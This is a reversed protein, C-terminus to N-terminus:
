VVNVESAYGSLSLGSALTKSYNSGIIIQASFRGDGEPIISKRLIAAGPGGKRYVVSKFSDIKEGPIGRAQLATYDTM